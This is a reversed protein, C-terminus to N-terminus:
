PCSGRGVSVQWVASLKPLTRMTAPYAPALPCSRINPTASTSWALKMVRPNSTVACSAKETGAAAPLSSPILSAWIACPMAIAAELSAEKALM